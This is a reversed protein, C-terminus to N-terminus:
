HGSIAYSGAPASAAHPPGVAGIDHKVDTAVGLRGGSLVPLVAFTGGYYNAVLVYRGSPHVSLHAPGAGQSSVTNLRQLRGSTRDIAYATVAGANSKDFNSIENAAYLYNQSPHLALWSPNSGDEFVERKTLLGNSPNMQFLVVGSGNGKSGEPGQPSSYTGAYGLIPHEAAGAIAPMCAVASKLLQRRSFKYRM